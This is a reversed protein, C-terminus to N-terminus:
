LKLEMQVNCRAYPSCYGETDKFGLKYYLNIAPKLVSNTELYITDAGLDRAKEITALGIKWGIKQGQAKPSVAMKALEYTKEKMKVLACTGVTKDNLTAILIAGGKEIIYGQPDDLMNRDSEEMEFYQNIWAENLEKFARAHKPLYNVIEIM